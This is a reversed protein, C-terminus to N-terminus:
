RAMLRSPRAKLEAWKEETQPWAGARAGPRGDRRRNGALCDTSAIPAAKAAQAVSITMSCGGPARLAHCPGPGQVSSSRAHGVGEPCCAELARSCPVREACGNQLCSCLCPQSVATRQPLSPRQADGARRQRQYPRARACGPDAAKEVVLGRKGRRGSDATAPRKQKTAKQPGSRQEAPKSATTPTPSQRPAAPSSSRSSPRAQSLAPAQWSASPQPPAMLRKMAMVTRSSSNKPRPAPLMPRRAAPQSASQQQQQQQKASRGAPTCCAETPSCCLLM